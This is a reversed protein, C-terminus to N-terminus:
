KSHSFIWPMLSPEAFASDWSNHNAEPYLTFKVTGGHERIAEVMKESNEPPVVNDKGGHFVWLATIGAYSAVGAPDGGGCIPFAAAFVDPRRTLIDFTGMGGMSLGGVYVRKTDIYSQQLLSDLLELVLQMAPTPPNQASFGFDNGGTDRPTQTRAVWYDERPCQPFVVVAPFKERNEPQLFLTGGHVLQKENDNGREGSGHLFLVLPYPHAPDFHEPYLIRYNLTESGRKFVKKQYADLNQSMGPLLLTCMLLLALSKKM